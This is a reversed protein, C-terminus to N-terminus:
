LYWLRIGARTPIRLGMDVAIEMPVPHGKPASPGIMTVPPASPEKTPCNREVVSSSLFIRREAPAAAPMDAVKPLGTDPTKIATSSNSNSNRGRERIGTATALAIAAASRLSEAAGQGINRICCSCFEPIAAKPDYVKIPAMTPNAETPAVRATYATSSVNALNGIWQIHHGAIPPRTTPM